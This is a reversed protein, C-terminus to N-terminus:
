KKEGWVRMAVLELREEEWLDKERVTKRREKLKGM